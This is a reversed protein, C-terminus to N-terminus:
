EKFPQAVFEFGHRTRQLAYAQTFGCTKAMAEAKDYACTVGSVHHADASVTIKGGMERLACLLERSPYPTVRCGRSIAGTNIEFIKGAAVLKEMAAFAAKQYRPSLPDFIPARQEDYKTLLDVHGVIKAYPQAAVADYQAFYAEAMADADGGFHRTLLDLTVEASTDVCLPPTDLPLHHVSGIAY